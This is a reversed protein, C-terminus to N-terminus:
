PDRYGMHIMVDNETPLDLRDHVTHKSLTPMKLIDWSAVQAEVLAKNYKHEMYSQRAAEINLLGRAANVLAGEPWHMPDGNETIDEILVQLHHLVMYLNFQVQDTDDRYNVEDIAPLEIKLTIDKTTKDM